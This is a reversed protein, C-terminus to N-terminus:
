IFDENDNKNSGWIFYYASYILFVIVGIDFIIRLM